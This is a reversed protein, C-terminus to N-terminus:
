SRPGKPPVPWPTPMSSTPTGPTGRGLSRVLQEGELSRVLGLVEHGHGRFQRILARGLVGTAGAIFARLAM